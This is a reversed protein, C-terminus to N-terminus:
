LGVSCGRTMRLLTPLVFDSTGVRLIERPTEMTAALHKPDAGESKTCCEKEAHRRSKPSRQLPDKAVSLILLVGEMPTGRRM